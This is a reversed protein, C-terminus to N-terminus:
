FGALLEFDALLVFGALLVFLGFVWLCGALLVFGTLLVFGALLGCGFGALLGFGVLVCYGDHAAARTHIRHAACFLQPACICDFGAAHLRECCHERGGLGCVRLGAAASSATPM